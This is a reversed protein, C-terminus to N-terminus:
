GRGGRVFTGVAAVLDAASEMRDVDAPVTIDDAPEVLVLWAKAPRLHRYVNSLREYYSLLRRVSPLVYGGEARVPDEFANALNWQSRDRAAALILSPPNHAAMGHQKGRPLERILGDLFVEVGTVVLGRDPGLNKELQATDVSAYRYYCASNFELMDVHGAGTEEGPQLDDVATFYDFEARIEHTSIAHAVQAAADINGEPLDAVMRGFLAVDLAQGPALLARKLEEEEAKTLAAKKSGSKKGSLKGSLQHCREAFAELASRALFLLYEAGEGKIGVTVLAAEAVSRASDQDYGQREQLLRAVEGVVRRTRVGTEASAGREAILDSFRMRAARKLAQSSIRARRVGGFVCDKPSGTDDRNLNAPAVSQLLHLEVIM